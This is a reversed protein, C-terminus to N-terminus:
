YWAVVDSDPFIKEAFYKETRTVAHSLYRRHEDGPALKRVDQEGTAISISITGYEKGQEPFYNYVAESQTNSILKLRLM